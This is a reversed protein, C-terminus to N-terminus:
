SAAVDIHVNGLLALLAAAIVAVLRWNRGTLDVVFRLVGLAGAKRAQDLEAMHIFDDYRKHANDRQEILAGHLSLHTGTWSTFDSRLLDIASVVRAESRQIAGDYDGRLLDIAALLDGTTPPAAVPLRDTWRRRDDGM